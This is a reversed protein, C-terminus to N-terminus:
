VNEKQMLRDIGCKQGHEEASTEKRNESEMAENM